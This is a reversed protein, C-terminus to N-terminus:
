QSYLREHLQSMEEERHVKYFAIAEQFDMTDCSPLKRDVPTAYADEFCFQNHFFADEGWCYVIADGGNIPMRCKVSACILGEQEPKEEEVKEELKLGGLLKKIVNFPWM